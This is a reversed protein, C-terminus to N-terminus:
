LAGRWASSLACGACRRLGLMASEPRSEGACGSATSRKNLGVFSASVGPPLLLRGPSWLGLFCGLTWSTMRRVGYAASLPAPAACGLGMCRLGTLSSIGGVASFAAADLGWPYHSTRVGVQRPLHLSSPPWPGGLFMYFGSVSYLGVLTEKKPPACFGFGVYVYFVFYIFM